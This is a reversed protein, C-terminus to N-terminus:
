IGLNGYKRESVSRMTLPSWAVTWHAISRGISKGYFSYKSLISNGSIETEVDSAELLLDIVDRAFIILVLIPLEM